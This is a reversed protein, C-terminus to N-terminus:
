TLMWGHFVEVFAAAGGCLTQQWREGPGSLSFVQKEVHVPRPSFVYLSGFIFTTQHRKPPGRKAEGSDLIGYVMTLLFEFKSTQRHVALCNARRTVGLPFWQSPEHQASKPAKGGFGFDLAGTEPDEPHSFIQYLRICYTTSVFSTRSRCSSFVFPPELFCAGCRAPDQVRSGVRRPPVSLCTLVFLFIGHHVARIKVDSCKQGAQDVTFGTLCISPHPKRM